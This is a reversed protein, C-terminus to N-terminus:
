QFTTTQYRSKATRAGYTAVDGFVGLAVVLWGIGSVGDLPGWALCM